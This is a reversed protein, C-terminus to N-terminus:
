RRSARSTPAAMSTGNSWAFCPAACGNPRPDRPLEVPREHGARGSRRGDRRLEHLGGATRDPRHRRRDPRQPREVRGSLLQRGPRGPGDGCQGVCGRLAPGLRRDDPRARREIRAAWSANILTAGNEAAYDIADIAQADSGCDDTDDIFKLAMITIRPSASSATGNMSAAITGAVHTGHGDHNVDHVTNDDHFDWGNVDDIYGNSDDDVGNGPTEDPNTWKRGALDPHTLDVGDDIVAVVIQPKGAQVRIAELGDIDVDAVGKQLDIGSITQGSSHLGWEYRFYQEDTPDAALERRYNHGVAAVRSDSALLRRVTAPSVGKGRVVATRGTHSSRVVTLDLDRTLARRQAATANARFRVLIEDRASAPTPADAALTVAPGFLGTALVVTLLLAHRTRRM